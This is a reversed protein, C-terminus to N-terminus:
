GRRPGEPGTGTSLKGPVGPYCHWSRVVGAQRSNGCGSPAFDLTEWRILSPTIKQWGWSWRSFILPAFRSVHAAAGQAGLEPRGEGRAGWSPPLGLALGLQEGCEGEEWFTELLRRWEEQWRGRRRHWGKLVRASLPRPGARGCGQGAPIGPSAPYSPSDAEGATGQCAQPWPQRRRSARRPATGLLSPARGALDRSRRPASSLLRTRLPPQRDTRGAPAASCPPLRAPSPRRRRPFPARPPPSVSCARRQPLAARGAGAGRPRRTENGV